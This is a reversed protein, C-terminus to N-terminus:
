VSLGVLTFCIRLRDFRFFLTRVLILSGDKPLLLLSSLFLFLLL